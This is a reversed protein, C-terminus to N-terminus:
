KYRNFDHVFDEVVYDSTWPPLLNSINKKTPPFVLSKKGTVLDCVSLQYLLILNSNTTQIIKRSVILNSSCIKVLIHEEVKIWKSKGSYNTKSSLEYVIDNYITKYPNYIDYLMINYLTRYNNYYSDIKFQLDIPLNSLRSM